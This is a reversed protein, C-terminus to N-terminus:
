SLYTLISIIALHISYSCNISNGQQGFTRKRNMFSINKLSEKASISWKECPLAYPYINPSTSPPSLSHKYGQSVPSASVSHHPLNPSPARHPRFSYPFSHSLVCVCWMSLLSSQLAVTKHLFNSSVHQILVQQLM